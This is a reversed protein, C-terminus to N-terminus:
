AAARREVAAILESLPMELGAAIKFLTEVRSDTEGRELKALSNRHVDAQHALEEQTFKRQKRREEIEDGLQQLITRKRM